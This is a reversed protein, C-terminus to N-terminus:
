LRSIEAAIVKLQADVEPRTEQYARTMYYRPAMKTTGFEVFGAYEKENKESVDGELSSSIVSWQYPGTQEARTGSSLNGSIDHINDRARQAMSEASNHVLLGVSIRAIRGAGVLAAIAERVGLVQVGGLVGGRAGTQKPLGIVRAM